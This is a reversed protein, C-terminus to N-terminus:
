PKEIQLHIITLQIAIVGLSIFQILGNRHDCDVIHQFDTLHSCGTLFYKTNFFIQMMFIEM